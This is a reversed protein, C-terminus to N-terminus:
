LEKVDQRWLVLLWSILGWTALGLFIVYLGATLYLERNIYIGIALIDVFIWFLWSELKRRAMLFQAVISAATTSADLYPLAAGVFSMGYGLMFTVAITVVGWNFFETGELTEVVIKGDGGKNHVWNYWGYLQAIIFFGQLLVDSYLRADFFIFIYLFTMALGFPYNWINRRVILYVCIVGLVVAIIEIISM